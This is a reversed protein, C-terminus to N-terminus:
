ACLFDLDLRRALDQWDWAAFWDGRDMARWAEELLETVRDINRLGRYGRIVKIASQLRDRQTTSRCVTGVILCPILLLAQCPDSPKIGELIELCEGLPIVAKTIYAPSQKTHSASAEEGHISGSLYYERDEGHQTQGIEHMSQRRDASSASQSQYHQLTPSSNTSIPVRLPVTRYGNSDLATPFDTPHTGAVAFDMTNTSPLMMGPWATDPPTISSALYIWMMQKYLLAVKARSDGPPWEPSWKLLSAEIDAASCIVGYNTPPHIHSELNARVTDRLAKVQPLLNLLGDAVGLLRPSPIASSLPWAVPSLRSRDNSPHRLLEDALVHYHFFETVFANLDPDTPPSDRIMLQYAALHYRHAGTSDGDVMAELLLCLIQGYRAHLLTGGDADNKEHLTGLDRQLIDMARKSHYDSRDQLAELSNSPDSLIRAGYPTEYDIHKSSLSLVSHMLGEHKVAITVVLNRFANSHEGEVTLVASLHENYHKWFIRDEHTELGEFLAQMSIAPLAHGNLREAARDAKSGIGACCLLPTPYSGSLVCRGRDQTQREEVGAEGPVRRMHCREERLEHRQSNLVVAERSLLM